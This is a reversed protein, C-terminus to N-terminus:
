KNGEMAEILEEPRISKDDIYLDTNTKKFSIANYRINHKDLWRITEISLEVRRATYIVIFKDFALDNIISIMKRNPEAIRCDLPTYSDGYCLTNDMDVAIVKANNLAKRIDMM